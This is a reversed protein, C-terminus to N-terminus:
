SVWDRFDQTSIWSEGLGDELDFESDFDQIPDAVANGVPLHAACAAPSGRVTSSSRQRQASPPLAFEDVSRSSRQGSPAPPPNALPTAGLGVKAACASREPPPPSESAKAQAEQGRQFVVQAKSEAELLDQIDDSDLAFLDSSSPDSLTLNPTPSHYPDHTHPIQDRLLVSQVARSNGSLQFVTNHMPHDRAPPPGPTPSQAPPLRPSPPPSSFSLEREIQTNSALLSTWDDEGVGLLPIFPEQSCPQEAKEALHRITDNPHNRESPRYSANKCDEEKTTIGSRLGFGHSVINRSKERLPSRGIGGDVCEDDGQESVNHATRDTKEDKKPTDFRKLFDKIGIQSTNIKEECEIGMRQRTERLKQEKEEKKKKNAKKVREKERLKEARRALEEQRELRRLEAESIAPKKQRRYARKVQKSTQPKHRVPAPM